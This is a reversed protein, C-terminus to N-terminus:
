HYSIFVDEIDPGVVYITTTTQPAFSFSTPRLGKLTIPHQMCWISDSTNWFFGLYPLGILDFLFDCTLGNAFKMSWHHFM